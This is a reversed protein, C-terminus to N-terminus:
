HEKCLRCLSNETLVRFRKWARTKVMQEIMSIIASTERPTLNQELWINCKKGQKKNIENQMEKKNYKELRKEESGNKFSEKVQKWIPKFERDM